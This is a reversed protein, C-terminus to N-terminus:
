CSDAVVRVSKIPPEGSRDGFQPQEEGHEGLLRKALLTTKHTQWYLAYYVVIFVQGVLGSTVIGAAGFNKALPYISAFIACASLFSAQLM